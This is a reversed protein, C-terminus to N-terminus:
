STLPESALVNYTGRCVVNVRDHTTELEMGAQYFFRALNDRHSRSALTALFCVTFAIIGLAILALCMMLSAQSLVPMTFLSFLLVVSGVVISTSSITRLRKNRQLLNEAKTFLNLRKKWVDGYQADFEPNEHLDFKKELLLLHGTASAKEPTNHHKITNM